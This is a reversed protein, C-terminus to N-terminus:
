KTIDFNEEFIEKNILNNKQAFDLFYVSVNNFANIYNIIRYEWNTEKSIIFDGVKPIRKYWYNESLKKKYSNEAKKSLHSIYNRIIYFEEIKEYIKKTENNKILFPNYKKVLINKSINKLNSMSKVDFFWLWNLISHCINRTLHKPIYIQSYESYKSTDKNFCDILLNEIFMEWLTLYKIIMAEVIEKKHEKKWVVKKARLINNIIETYEYSDEFFIKFTVNLESKKM